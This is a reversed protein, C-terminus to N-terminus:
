RREAGCGRDDPRGGPAWGRRHAGVSPAQRQHDAPREDPEAGRDRIVGILPLLDEWVTPEGGILAVKKLGRRSRLFRDIEAYSLDEARDERRTFCIPCSLNCRDTLYLHFNEMQGYSLPRDFHLDMQRRYLAAQPEVLVRIDGHEPCTRELLITGEEELVRGPLRRLCSPCVTETEYLCTM